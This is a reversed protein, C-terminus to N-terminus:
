GWKRVRKLVVKEGGSVDGDFEAILAGKTGFTGKIVGWVNKEPVYVKEGILREGATKSSALGEIYIKDKKKVVKGEKVVIKKLEVDGFGIVEGFGCIRLTTPPLDLRMILVKDGEEIVVNDDM